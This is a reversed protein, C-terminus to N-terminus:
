NSSEPYKKKMRELIISASKPMREILKQTSAEEKLSNAIENVRGTLLETLCETIQQSSNVLGTELTHAITNSLHKTHTKIEQLILHKSLDPTPKELLESYNTQQPQPLSTEPILPNFEVEPVLNQPTSLESFAEDISFLINTKLSEFLDESSKKLISVLVKQISEQAKLM